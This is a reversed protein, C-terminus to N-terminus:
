HYGANDILNISLNIDGYLGKKRASINFKVANKWQNRISIM